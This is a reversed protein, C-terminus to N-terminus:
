YHCVLVPRVPSVLVSVIVVYFQSFNDTQIDTNWHGGIGQLRHVDTSRCQRM